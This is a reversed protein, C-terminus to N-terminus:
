REETAGATDVDEYHWLWWDDGAFKEVDASVAAGEPSGLAAQMDAATDFALSAVLYPPDGGMATVPGKSVRYEKLGPLTWALPVHVDFYHRDFAEPDSPTGYCVLMRIM